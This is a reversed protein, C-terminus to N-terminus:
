NREKSLTGEIKKINQFTNVECAWFLSVLNFICKKGHPRNQQVKQSITTMIVIILDVGGDNM